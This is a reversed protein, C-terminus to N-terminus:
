RRLLDIPFYKIGEFKSPEINLLYAIVAGELNWYGDYSCVGGTKSLKLNGYWSASKKTKMWNNCYELLLDEKNKTDKQLIQYPSTYSKPYLLKIKKQSQPIETKKYTYWISELLLDKGRITDCQLKYQDLIDKDVNFLIGICLTTLVDEYIGIYTNLQEYKYDDNGAELAIKKLFNEFILPVYKALEDVNKGASYEILLSSLYDSYLGEHLRVPVGTNSKIYENIKEIHNIKDELAYKFYAEDKEQDRLM